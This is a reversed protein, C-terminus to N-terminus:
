AVPAQGAYTQVEQVARSAERERKCPAALNEKAEREREQLTERSSKAPKLGCISKTPDVDDKHGNLLQKLVKTAEKHGHFDGWRRWGRPSVFRLRYNARILQTCAPLTAMKIIVDHLTGNWDWNPTEPAGDGGLLEDPELGEEEEADMSAQFYELLVARHKNNSGKCGWAKLTAGNDEQDVVEYLGKGDEFHKTLGKLISSNLDSPIDPASDLLELAKKSALEKTRSLQAKIQAAEREKSLSDAMEKTIPWHKTVDRWAKINHSLVEWYYDPIGRTESALQPELSTYLEELREVLLPLSRNAVRIIAAAKSIAAAQTRVSLPSEQLQQAQEKYVWWAKPYFGEQEQYKNEAARGEEELIKPLKKLSLEQLVVDLASQLSYLTSSVKGPEPGTPSAWLLSTHDCSRLSEFITLIKKVYGEGKQRHAARKLSLGDKCLTYFLKWTDLSKETRKWFEKDGWEAGQMNMKKGDNGKMKKVGSSSMVLNRVNEMGAQVADEASEIYVVTEPQQPWKKVEDTEEETDSDVEIEPVKTYRIGQRPGALMDELSSLDREVNSAKSSLRLYKTGREKWTHRVPNNSPWAAGDSSSMVRGSTVAEVTCRLLGGRIASFRRRSDRTSLQLSHEWNESNLQSEALKQDLVTNYKPNSSKGLLNSKKARDTDNNRRVALGHSVMDRGVTRNERSAANLVKLADEISMCKLNRLLDRQGEEDDDVVMDGMDDRVRGGMEMERRALHNVSSLQPRCGMGGNLLAPSICAERLLRLLTERHKAGSDDSISGSSLLRAALAEIYSIVAAESADVYIPVIHTERPPLSLLPSGDMYTQSKSHRMMVGRLLTQLLDLAAPEQAKWPLDVKRGWFGDVEDRLAFPWVGLFHLEGNLDNVDRFIPTGSIMWRFSAPMKECKKALQTTSSRVEQMEDLAIRKWHILELMPDKELISYTTLVIEHDALERLRKQRVSAANLGKEVIRESASVYTAIRIAGPKTTKLIEERWQPVLAPPVVVLTARSTFM